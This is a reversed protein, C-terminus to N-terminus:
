PVLAETAIVKEAEQVKVRATRLRELATEIANSVSTKEARPAVRLESLLTELKTAADEVAAKGEELKSLSTKLAAKRSEETV